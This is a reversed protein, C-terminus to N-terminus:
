CCHIANGSAPSGASTTPIPAAPDSVAVVVLSTAVLVLTLARKFRHM